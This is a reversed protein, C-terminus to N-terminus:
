SDVSFTQVKEFVYRALPPSEMMTSLAKKCFAMGICDPEKRLDPSKTTSLLKFLIEGIQRLCHSDITLVNAAL